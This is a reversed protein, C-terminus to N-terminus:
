DPIDFSRERFGSEIRRRLTAPSISSAYVYEDTIVYSRAAGGGADRLRGAAAARQLFRDGERAKQEPAADLIAIVDASRIIVDGGLHLYM